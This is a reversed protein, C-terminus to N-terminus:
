ASFINGSSPQQHRCSLQEIKRKDTFAYVSSQPATKSVNRTTTGMSGCISKKRRPNHHQSTLLRLKLTHVM